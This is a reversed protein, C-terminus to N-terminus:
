GGTGPEPVVSSVPVGTTGTVSFVNTLLFSVSFASIM